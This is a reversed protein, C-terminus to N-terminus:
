APEPSEEDAAVRARVDFPTLWAGSDLDRALYDEETDIM